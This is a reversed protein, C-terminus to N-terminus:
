GAARRRAGRREESAQATVVVVGGSYQWRAGRAASGGPLRRQRCRGARRLLSSARPPLVFLSTSRMAGGVARARRTRAAVRVPLNLGAGAHRTAAAVADSQAHVRARVRRMRAYDSGRRPATSERKAHLPAGPPPAEGPAPPTPPTPSGMSRATRPSWGRPATRGPPRRPWRRTCPCTGSRRAALRATRRGRAARGPAPIGNCTSLRIATAAVRAPPLTSATESGTSISIFIQM